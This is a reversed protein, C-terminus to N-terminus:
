KTGDSPSSPMEDGTGDEKAADETENTANVEKKFERQLKEATSKCRFLTM